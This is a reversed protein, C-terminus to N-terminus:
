GDLVVPADLDPRQAGSLVNVINNSLLLMSATILGM